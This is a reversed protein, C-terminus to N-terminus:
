YLHLIKDAETTRTIPAHLCHKRASTYLTLWFCVTQLEHIHHCPFTNWIDFQSLMHLLQSSKFFESKQGMRYLLAAKIVSVSFALATETDTAKYM